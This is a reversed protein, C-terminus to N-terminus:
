FFICYVFEFTGLIDDVFICESSFDCSMTEMLVRLAKIRYSNLSFDYYKCSINLRIPCPNIYTGFTLSVQSRKNLAM